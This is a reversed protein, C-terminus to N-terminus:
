FARDSPSFKTLNLLRELSINVKVEQYRLSNTIRFETQSTDRVFPEAAVMGQRNILVAVKPMTSNTGRKVVVAVEGSTLRVYSGPAYIGVAKILAAGAEDIQREEDFYCSQM